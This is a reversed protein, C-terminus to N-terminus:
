AAAEVNGCTGGFGAERLRLCYGDWEECNPDNCERVHQVLKRRDRASWGGRFGFNPYAAELDDLLCEFRVPCEHCIDAAADLYTRTDGGRPPFFRRYHGDEGAMGRCAAQARWGDLYGLAQIITLFPSNNETLDLETITM